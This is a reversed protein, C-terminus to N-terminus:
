ILNKKKENVETDNNFANIYSQFCEKLINLYGPLYSHKMTHLWDISWEM